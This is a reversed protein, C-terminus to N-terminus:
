YVSSVLGASNEASEASNKDENLSQRALFDPGIQALDAHALGAKDSWVPHNYVSACDDAHPEVSSKKTRM